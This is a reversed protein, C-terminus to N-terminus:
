MLRCDGLRELSDLVLRISVQVAFSLTLIMVAQVALARAAEAASSAADTVLRSLSTLVWDAALGAAFLPVTILVATSMASAFVTLVAGSGRLVADPFAHPPVCLFSQAVGKIFAHHGDLLLLAGIGVLTYLRVVPDTEPDFRSNFMASRALRGTLELVSFALRCLTGIVLGIVTEKAAASAVSAFNIEVGFSPISPVLVLTLAGAIGLRGLWPLPAGGFFPVMSLIPVIRCFALAATVVYSLGVDFPM